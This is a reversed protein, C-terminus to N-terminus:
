THRRRNRVINYEEDEGEEGKLITHKFDDINVSNKLTDKLENVIEDLFDSDTM